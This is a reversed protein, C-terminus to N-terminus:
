IPAGVARAFKDRNLSPAVVGGSFRVHRCWVDRCGKGFNTRQQGLRGSDM